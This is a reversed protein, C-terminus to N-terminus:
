EDFIKMREKTKKDFDNKSFSTKIKLDADHVYAAGDYSYYQTHVGDWRKQTLSFKANNIYKKADNLTCGHRAAHDDNFIVRRTDIKKAPVRINGTIGTERIKRYNSFDNKTAEPVNKKYRYFSKLEDYENPKTYKIDRFKEFSRPAEKGLRQKYQTYQIKDSRRNYIKKREIDIAKKGYQAEKQTFYERYNGKFIEYEGTIPNKMRRQMNKVDFGLPVFRVRCRCNYTNAPKADPDGPQMIKGMSNEFPENIDYLVVQDLDAHWDRTRLDGTAFWIKKLKVGDDEARRVSDMRGLNEASTAMTRANRVSATKNM